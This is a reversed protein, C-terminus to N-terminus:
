ATEVACLLALAQGFLITVLSLSGARGIRPLAHEAVNSGDDTVRRLPAPDIVAGIAGGLWARRPVRRIRRFLQLYLAPTGPSIFVLHRPGPGVVPGRPLVQKGVRAVCPIGCRRRGAMPAGGGSLKKGIVVLPM